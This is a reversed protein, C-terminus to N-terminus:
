GRYVELKLVAPNTKSIVAPEQSTTKVTTLQVNYTRRM